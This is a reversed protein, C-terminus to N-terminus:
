CVKEVLKCSVCWTSKPTRLSVGVEISSYGCSQDGKFVALM